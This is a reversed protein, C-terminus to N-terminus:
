SRHRCRRPSHLGAFFIRYKGNCNASQKRRCHFGWGATSDSAAAAEVDVDVGQLAPLEGNLKKLAQILANPDPTLSHLVKLGRSTIALLSIAQGATLNEALYKVLQKRGYAQDLFPTNGTDLAVVTVLHPGQATASLNSFEGNQTTPATLPVPTAAIEQFSQIRQEKGNEFVEFDTRSLGHVHEGSKNTVVAPVQV